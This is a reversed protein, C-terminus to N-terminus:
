ITECGWDLTAWFHTETTVMTGGAFCWEGHPPLRGRSDPPETEDPGIGQRSLNDGGAVKPWGTGEGFL